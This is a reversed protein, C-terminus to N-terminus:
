SNEETVDWNPKTKDVKQAVSKLKLLQIHVIDALKSISVYMDDNTSNATCKRGYASYRVRATFEHKTKYLIVHFDVNQHQILKELKSFHENVSDTLADTVEFSSGQIIINM